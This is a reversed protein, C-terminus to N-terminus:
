GIQYLAPDPSVNDVTTNELYLKLTFTSDTCDLWLSGDYKAVIHAINALGFGHLDDRKPTLMVTHDQIPVKEKVPNRLEILLREEQLKMTLLIERNTEPPVQSAAKIANDLANGLLVVLDLQDIALTGFLAIAPHFVLDEQAAEAAKVTLLNDLPLLGTYATINSTLQAAKKQMEALAYDTQEEQLAGIVGLLFNKEDHILTKLATNKQMSNQYFAEQAQIQQKLLVASLSDQQLQAMKKFIFFVAVDFALILCELLLFFFLGNELGRKLTLYDIATSMLITIALLVLLLATWSSAASQQWPLKVLINQKFPRLICLIVVLFLLSSSILGMVYYTTSGLTLLSLKVAGITLVYAMINELLIGLGSYILILVGKYVRKGHYAATLLLCVALYALSRQYAEPLYVSSLYYLLLVVGYLFVFRTKPWVKRELFINLYLSLLMIDFLVVALDIIPVLNM